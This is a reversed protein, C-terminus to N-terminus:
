INFNASLRFAYNLVEKHDMEKNMSIEYLRTAKDSSYNFKMVKKKRAYISGILAWKRADDNHIIWEKAVKSMILKQNKLTRHFGYVFSHKSSPYKCHWAIPELHEVKSGKFVKNNGLDINDPRLKTKPISFSVQNSFVNLGSILDNSFYDLMKIQAGTIESTLFLESIRELSNESMLISDADIKVLLRYKGRDMNWIKGLELHADLENLGSVIVHNYSETVQKNIMEVCEKFENEGNELTVILIPKKNV